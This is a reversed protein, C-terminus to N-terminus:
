PKFELMVPVKKSTYAEALRPKIHHAVTKNDPLVIYALFEEEFTAIGSEVAELKAKIALCLARWRQRCAQEWAAQRAEETRERKGGPSMAFQKEDPKPLQLVFRVLRDSARFQISATGIGDIFAREVIGYRTLTREIEM